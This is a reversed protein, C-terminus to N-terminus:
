VTKNDNAIDGKAFVRYVLAYVTLALAVAWLVDIVSHQKVFVTSLCIFIMVLASVIRLMKHKKMCPESFTTIHICIAEYCHLSPCVNLPEDNSFIVRCLWLLFGNGSADPRFDIATPFLWFLVICIAMGSFLTICQKIFSRRDAFCMIIMPLPVYVYWIIYPIIFIPLFPIIDDIATHIVTYGVDRQQLFFYLISLPTFFLLIFIHRYKGILKVIRNRVM